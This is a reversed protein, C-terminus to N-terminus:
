GSCPTTSVSITSMTGSRRWRPVSSASSASIKWPCALSCRASRFSSCSASSKSVSPTVSVIKCPVCKMRRYTVPGDRMSDGIHGLDDECQPMYLSQAFKELAPTSATSTVPLAGSTEEGAPSFDAAAPHPALTTLYPLTAGEDPGKSWRKGPRSFFCQCRRSRERHMCLAIRFWVPANENEGHFSARWAASNRQLFFSLPRWSPLPKSKYAM